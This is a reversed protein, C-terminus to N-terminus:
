GAIQMVATSSTSTKRIGWECLVCRQIRKPSKKVKCGDSIALGTSTIKRAHNRCVRRPAIVSQFRVSIGAASIGTSNM